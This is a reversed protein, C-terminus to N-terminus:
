STDGHDAPLIVASTTGHSDFIRDVMEAPIGLSQDRMELRISGEATPASAVELAGREEKAHIPDLALNTVVRQLSTSDIATRPAGAEVARDGRRPHGDAV